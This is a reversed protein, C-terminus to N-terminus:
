SGIPAAQHDKEDDGASSARGSNGFIDGIQELIKRSFNGQSNILSEYEFEIWPITVSMKLWNRMRDRDYNLEKLYRILTVINITWTKKLRFDDARTVYLKLDNSVMTSVYAALIDNRVLHIVPIGLEALLNFLHPPRGHNQWVPNLNHLSNYKADILTFANRNNAFADLYSEFLRTQNEVHPISLEPDGAIM